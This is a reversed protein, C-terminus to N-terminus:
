KKIKPLLFGNANHMVPDSRLVEDIIQAQQVPSVEVIHHYLNKSTWKSFTNDWHAIYIGPEQTPFEVHSAILHSDYRKTPILARAETDKDSQKYLLSFGIDNSETSFHIHLTSGPIEVVFHESHTAGAAVTLRKGPFVDKDEIPGGTKLSVIAKGGLQPPLREPPLLSILEDKNLRVKDITTQPVFPAVLKYLVNFVGPTNIFFIQHVMEPYNAEDIKTLTRLFDIGPTYAHKMGLGDCDQINIFPLSYGRTKIQRRRRFVPLVVVVVVCFSLSFFFFFLNAVSQSRLM